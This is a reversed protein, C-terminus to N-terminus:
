CVRSWGCVPFVSYLGQCVLVCQQLCLHKGTQGRACCKNRFCIKHGPCLFHKQNQESVDQTRLLHKGTQTAWSVDHAVIHGRCHTRTQRYWLKRSPPLSPFRPVLNPGHCEPLTINRDSLAGIKIQMISIKVMNCFCKFQVPLSM